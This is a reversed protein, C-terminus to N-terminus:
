EGKKVREWETKLIKKTIEVIGQKLVEAPQTIAEGFICKTYLGLFKILDKSDDENSNLMLVIRVELKLIDTLRENTLEQLKQVDNIPNLLAISYTETRALYESVNDRIKNIWDQRNGSIVIKSFDLRAIEKSSEIQRLLVQKQSRNTVITIIVSLIGIILAAVWPMQDKWSSPNTTEIKLREPVSIKDSLTIVLSDPYDITIKNEIRKPTSGNQGWSSISLLNSAVLVFVKLLKMFSPLSILLRTM